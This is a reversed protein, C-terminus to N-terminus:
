IVYLIFQVGRSALPFCIRVYFMVITLILYIPNRFLYLRESLADLLKANSSTLTGSTQFSAVCLNINLQTCIIRISFTLLGLNPHSHPAAKSPCHLVFLILVNIKQYHKEINEVPKSFM